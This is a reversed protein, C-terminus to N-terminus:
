SFGFFFFPCGRITFSIIAMDCRRKEGHAAVVRPTIRAGSVSDREPVPLGSIKLQLRFPEVASFSGDQGVMTGLCAFGYYSKHLEMRSLLLSVIGQSFTTVFTAGKRRVDARSGGKHITM